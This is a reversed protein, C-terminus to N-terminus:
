AKTRRVYTISLPYTSLYDQFTTRKPVFESGSIYIQKM